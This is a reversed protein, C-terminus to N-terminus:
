SQTLVAFLHLHKMLHKNPWRVETERAKKDRNLSSIEEVLQSELIKANKEITAAHENAEDREQRASTLEMGLEKQGNDLEGINAISHAIARVTELEAKSSKLETQAATQARKAEEFQQEFASTQASISEQTARAEEEAARAQKELQAVAQDCKQLKARVAEVDEQAAKERKVKQNLVDFQTRYAAQQRM